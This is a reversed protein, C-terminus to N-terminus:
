PSPMRAFTHWMNKSATRQRHMVLRVIVCPMYLSIITECKTGGRMSCWALSKEYNTEHTTKPLYMEEGCGELGSWKNKKVKISSKDLPTEKKGFLNMGVFSISNISSIRCWRPRTFGQLYHSMYQILQHLIKDMLLIHQSRSMKIQCNERLEIWHQNAMRPNFFTISQSFICCFVVVDHCGVCAYSYGPIPKKNKHKNNRYYTNWEFIECVELHNLKQWVEDGVTPPWSEGKNLPDCTWWGGFFTVIASNSSVTKNSHLFVGFFCCNM